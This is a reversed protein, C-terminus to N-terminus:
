LASASVFAFFSAGDGALFGDGPLLSAGCGTLFGDGTLLSAGCGALFGDGTLDVLAGDGARFGDGTLDLIVALDGNRDGPPRLGHSSSIM